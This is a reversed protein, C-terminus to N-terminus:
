VNHLLLNGFKSIGQTKPLWFTLRALLKWCKVLRLVTADELIWRSPIYLASASNVSCSERDLKSSRVIIWWHLRPPALALGLTKREHALKGVVIPQPLWYSDKKETSICRRSSKKMEQCSGSLLSPEFDFTWKSLM